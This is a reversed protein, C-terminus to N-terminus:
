AFDRRPGTVRLTLSGTWLGNVSAQESTQQVYGLLTMKGGTGPLTVKVGIVEGSEYAAQLAGQVSVQPAFNYDIQITGYDPLGIEFEQAESCISTAPIEPSAGGQRNYGTLECLSSWVGFDVYASSAFTGYDTSNIGLLQYSNADVVNVIYKGGELEVMGEVDQIRAVDGSLQGHATQTVVAPNAKTVASIVGSPSSADFNTAFQITSGQFKYKKGGAM